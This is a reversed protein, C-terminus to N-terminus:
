IQSVRALFRFNQTSWIFFIHVKPIYFIFYFLANICVRVCVCVCQTAENFTHGPIFEQTKQLWWSRLM